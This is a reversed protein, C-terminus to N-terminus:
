LFKLIDSLHISRSPNLRHKHRLKPFYNGCKPFGDPVPPLDKQEGINFLMVMGIEQHYVFHCHFMWYGPNNAFFRFIVYGNNPLAITDKNPPSKFNRVLRNDNDLQKLYEISIQRRPDTKSTNPGFPQGMSLVTYVYGHLHFPHNVSQLHSQDVLIVEVVSNLPIKEMNTCICAANGNCESPKDRSNCFQNKPLDALQSIPPSSPFSYTINNITGSIALGTNPVLFDLYKNPM